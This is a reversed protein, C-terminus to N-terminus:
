TTHHLSWIQASLMNLRTNLDEPDFCGFSAYNSSFALRREFKLTLLIFIFVRQLTSEDAQFLAQEGSSLMRQLHKAVHVAVGCFTTFINRM